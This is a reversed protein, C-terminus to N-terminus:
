RSLSPGKPQEKKDPPRTLLCRYIGGLFLLPIVLALVALLFFSRPSMGPNVLQARDVGNLRLIYAEINAIQQPSLTHSDGYDAMRLAPNPGTPVSGHQIIVDIKEAFAQPDSSFLERDIPNLPPVRGEDSGPNPVKDTGQPGHCSSCEQNYLDAGRDASGIM